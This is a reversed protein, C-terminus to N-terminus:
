TTFQIQDCLLHAVTREDGETAQWGRAVLTDMTSLQEFVSGADVVTM